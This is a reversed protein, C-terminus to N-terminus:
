LALRKRWWAYVAALGAVSGACVWFALADALVSFGHSLDNWM